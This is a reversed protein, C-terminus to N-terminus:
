AVQFGLIVHKVMNIFKSTRSHKVKPNDVKAQAEFM